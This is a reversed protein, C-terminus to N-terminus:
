VVLFDDTTLTLGPSLQAITVAAISGAGDADYALRGSTSDYILRTEASAAAPGGGGWFAGASPSVVLLAAAPLAGAALATFTTHDLRLTDDAVVFDTITAHNRPGALVFIDAGGGGTLTDHGFGGSLVDNGTGGLLRDNGAGGNLTDANAGGSITDDGRGGHIMNAQNNGTADLAQAGRYILKEVHGALTWAGGTTVLMTDVGGNAGETIVDRLSDVQYIDNGAGGTLTDDGAIGGLTDNRAGGFLQDNGANGLVTDDGAAGRLTDDFRSGFITSRQSPAVIAAASTVAHADLTIWYDAPMDLRSSLDLLGGTGHFEFKFVNAITTFSM